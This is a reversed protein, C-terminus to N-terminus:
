PESVFSDYYVALIFFKFSTEDYIKKDTVTTNMSIFLTPIYADTNM